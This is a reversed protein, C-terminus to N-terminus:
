ASVLAVVAEYPRLNWKAASLRKKASEASEYNNLLAEMAGTIGNGAADWELEKDTWNALVLAKQGEYQRTYAFIEQSDRDVLDYNGYVFIDLYQKRLKLVSAWYHYLSGPDEAQDQANVLQYDPNVSMWPKVNPGTFGGNPASSWQM